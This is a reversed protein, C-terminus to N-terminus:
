DFPDPTITEDSYIPSRTTSRKTVSEYMSTKHTRFPPPTYLRTRHTRMTHM